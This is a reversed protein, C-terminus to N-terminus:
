INYEREGLVTILTTGERRKSVELSQLQLFSRQYIKCEGHNKQLLSETNVADFPEDNGARLCDMTQMMLDEVRTLPQEAHISTDCDDVPGSSSKPHQRRYKRAFAKVKSTFLEAQRVAVSTSAVLAECMQTIGMERRLQYTMAPAFIETQNRWKSEVAADAADARRITNWLLKSSRLSLRLILM